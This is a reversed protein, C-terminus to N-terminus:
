ADHPETQRGAARQPERNVLRAVAAVLAAPEIPKALHAQFGSSLTKVRDAPRAYATLAAAPTRCGQSRLRTIFAYGDVNPMGIDSLIVDASWSDLVAWAEAASEAGRVEAGHRELLVRLLDRADAEDDVVLVRLGDLATPAVAPVPEARERRRRPEILRRDPPVAAALPLRVIFTAGCGIGESRCEVTGGHMEVLHRVIALGLGLGGSARTTGGEIQRFRDFIHPLHEPAIGRGTDAVIVQVHWGTRQLGVHVRGGKPTFKLANSILNWAVQQLRASDGLVVAFVPALSTELRVGRALATPRLTDVAAEIVPALEIRALDLRMKGSVIRSVDLLDEIIEQQVLVNREITEVAKRQQGEDLAGSRLLRSWGLVANLPTRLEHSLTALFEDKLRNADEAYSRARRAEDLLQANEIALAAQAALGVAMREARETFVDPQEHGFFLGGFVEGGRSVVPVALYSRVPLHGRPMGNFPPNHGFREDTYVDAVRIPGEERFTAGFLGTARPMPLGSFQGPDAGSLTYLMYSGGNGDPVNRFFAGFGAGTVATAADTVLQMVRQPDRESAITRGVQLLMEADRRADQERALLGQRERISVALAMQARVRAVLERSSFPKVLYDDAGATVGEIRAEEGARASVMIVRAGATRSDGRLAHLLAFGDVRPMMADTVVVDPRWEVALALASEGDAATLVQWHARLLRELYERMDVSDDVVLVRGGVGATENVAGASGGPAAGDEVVDDVPALPRAHAAEDPPLWRLAEALFAAATRAEAPRAPAELLQAPPVHATGRRVRVFVTTGVGPTSEIDCRGGHLRVLDDVLALGIGSGEYMRAQAAEIREFRRFVRPVDDADIGIGTDAVALCAYDTEWTLRVVVGGNFTFKLANSLLNLVVKEWMSPDVYVPEPGPECEVCCDLSAREFAARFGIVIDRTLSALDVPQFVAQMRGAEIRSFDLLTNVLKLLRLENRYVVELDDGALARDPSQLADETPGIMLTLPTRFEHSINTFFATRARDIAALEEARRREHELVAVRDLAARLLEAVRVAFRRYSDDIALRPSVGLVILASNSGDVCGVPVVLSSEVPEPWASGITAVGFMWTLGTVERLTSGRSRWVAARDDAAFSPIALLSGPALGSSAFLHFGADAKRYLLSFPVDAPHRDLVRAWATGIDDTSRAEGLAWGLEQLLAARRETIVRYTTEIGANFIGEVQGSEGRIATFTYNFYCEETYGHRRMPLLSDELYVSEGTTQVQRFLPEITEWIEPWVDVARRGLAWPHKSGPIPSWADNYLLVLEPGWYIAIPFRSGTCISLASRLSQPWAEIPGLPTSGWDFARMRVALDGGGIFPDGSGPAAAM